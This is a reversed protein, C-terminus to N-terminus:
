GSCASASGSCCCADASPAAKASVAPRLQRSALPKLAGCSTCTMGARKGCTPQRGPAAQLTLMQVAVFTRKAAAPLLRRCSVPGWGQRGEVAGTVPPKADEKPPLVVLEELGRLSTSTTFAAGSRHLLTPLSQQLSRVLSLM